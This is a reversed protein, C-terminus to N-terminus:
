WPVTPTIITLSKVLIPFINGVEEDEELSCESRPSRTSFNASLQREICKPTPDIGKVSQLGLRGLSESLLGAGCGIDLADLRGLAKDDREM